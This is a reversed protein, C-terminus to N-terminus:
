RRWTERFQMRVRKVLARRGVRTVLEVVVTGTRELQITM